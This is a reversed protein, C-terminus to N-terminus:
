CPKKGFLAARRLFQLALAPDCGKGCVASCSGAFHCRFVGEPSAIVELREEFGEDRNDVSYRYAQALAQPGIFGEVTGKSLDPTGMCVSYCNGCKICYAFQIYKALQEPTQKLERDPEISYIDEHKNILYTKVMEHKKFFPELDVVLDKVVPYKSLPELKVTDNGLQAIKTICALKPVGNVKVACSGCIAMRCSHRYSIGSDIHEKIYNLADLITVISALKPVKFTQEYSASDKAPDFRSIIFRYEEM